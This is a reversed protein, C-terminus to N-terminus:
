WWWVYYYKLMMFWNLLIVFILLLMIIINQKLYKNIISDISKLEEVGIAKKITWGVIKIIYKNEELFLLLIITKKIM